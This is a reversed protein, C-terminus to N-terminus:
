AAGERLEPCPDLEISFEAGSGTNAGTIRGGFSQV